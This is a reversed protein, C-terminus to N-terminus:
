HPHNLSQIRRFLDNRTVEDALLLSLASLRSSHEELWLHLAFPDGVPAGCGKLQRVRADSIGYLKGLAKSTM